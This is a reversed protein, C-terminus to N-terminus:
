VTEISERKVKTKDRIKRHWATSTVMARWM